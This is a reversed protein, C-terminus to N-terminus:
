LDPIGEDSSEDVDGDDTSDAAMDEYESADEGSYEQEGTEGTEGTGEDGSLDEELYESQTPPLPPQIPLSSQTPIPPLGPPPPLKFDVMSWESAPVGSLRLVHFIFDIKVMNLQSFDVEEVSIGNYHLEYWLETRLGLSAPLRLTSGAFNEVAAAVKLWPLGHGTHGYGTDFSRNTWLTPDPPTIDLFAHGMEHLLTGLYDLLQAEPTDGRNFRQYIEIVVKRNGNDLIEPLSQGLVHPSASAWQAATPGEKMIVKLQCNRPGLMGEFMIKSFRMFYRKLLQSFDEASDPSGFYALQGNLDYAKRSFWNDLHPGQKAFNKALKEAVGTLAYHDATCAPTAIAHTSM